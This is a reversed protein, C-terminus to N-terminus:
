NKLLSFSMRLMELPLHTWSFIYKKGKVWISKGSNANQRVQKKLQNQRSLNWVFHCTVSFFAVICTALCNFHLQILHLKRLSSSSTYHNQNLRWHSLSLSLSLSHTLSHTFPLTYILSVPEVRKHIIYAKVSSHTSHLSISHCPSLSISLFLSVFEGLPCSADTSLYQSLSKKKGESLLPLKEALSKTM